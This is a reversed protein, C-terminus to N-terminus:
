DLACVRLGLVDFCNNTVHCSARATRLIASLSLSMVLVTRVSLPLAVRPTVVHISQRRQAYKRHRCGLRAAHRPPSSLMSPCTFCLAQTMWQMGSPGRAGADAALRLGRMRREGLCCQSFSPRWKDSARHDLRPQAVRVCDIGDTIAICVPHLSLSVSAFRM